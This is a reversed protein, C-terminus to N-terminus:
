FAYTAGVLATWSYIEDAFMRSSRGQYERRTEDNINQVEGFISLSDSAEFSLKFDLQTHDGFYVDETTDGGIAELYADRYTAALRAEFRGFSFYLAVNGITDPQKFFTLNDSERGFVKVESDVFTLNVSAGLGDWPAPLNVFQQEWNLELGLLSGSKANEPQSLSLLDIGRFTVNQMRETYIPNDIDKYFAGISVIGSPQLYKEFSFDLGMSAFPKLDVNGSSGSDDEVEFIPVVDEFNPRGITNTWAARIVVDEKPRFTIHVSPLVDTYDNGDSVQTGPDLPDFTPDDFNILFADYDADTQEVRVGAVVTTTGFDVSVMGYAATLKEVISYDTAISDTASSEADLAFMGPMSRFLEEHGNFDLVPGLEYRGEAFHSPGPSYLGTDALTFGVAGEYNQNEQDQSKDREAYKLGFKLFGSHTGFDREIKVDTKFSNIDEEIDDTRRRVRRFPYNAPDHIAQGAGTLRNAEVSGNVARGAFGVGRPVRVVYDVSVDNRRVQMSGKSGIGCHNGRGPYLTCITVGGEHEIVEITVEDPDSRNWNKAATVEVHDGDWPEARIEGNVTKIEITQGKALHGSWSFRDDTGARAQTAYGSGIALAALLWVGSRWKM